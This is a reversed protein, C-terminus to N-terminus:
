WTSYNTCTRATAWGEYEEETLGYIDRDVNGYWDEEVDSLVKPLPCSEEIRDQLVLFDVSFMRGVIRGMMGFYKTIPYTLELLSSEHIIPSDRVM